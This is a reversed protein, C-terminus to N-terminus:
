LCSGNFKYWICTLYLSSLLGLNPTILVLVKVIFSAYLKSTSWSPNSLDYWSINSAYVFINALHSRSLLGTWASVPAIPPETDASNITLDSTPSSSITNQLM